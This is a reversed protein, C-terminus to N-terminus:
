EAYSDLKFTLVFNICTAWIVICFSYLVQIHIKSCVPDTQLNPSLEVQSQIWFYVRDMSSTHLLLPARSQRNRNCSAFHRNLYASLNTGNGRPKACQGSHGVRAVPSPVNSMGM